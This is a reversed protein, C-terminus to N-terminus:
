PQDLLDGIGVQRVDNGHHPLILVIGQEFTQVLIGQLPRAALGYGAAGGIQYQGPEAYLGARQKFFFIKSGHDIERVRCQLGREGHANVVHGLLHEVREFDADLM